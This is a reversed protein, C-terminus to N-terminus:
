EGKEAFRRARAIREPIPPHSYMTYKVFASPNPDSLNLEGLRRMAGEFASPSKTLELAFTDARREIYRSYANQLPALTLAIISLLWSLLPLATVHSLAPVKILDGYQRVLRTSLADVTWSLAATFVTGLAVFRWIDRHAQHAIEHAVVIEIEDASFNDLLTDALVIRKTRGLGAFFANAKKTQRSMDMQMVSAVNVGSDAALKTLREALQRDKLPEFKNFIPMILVPALQSLLVTFPLALATTIAWWRKPWRDIIELMVNAMIASFPVALMLGKLQDIAWAIRSQNSLGYRHEVVYGSYYGLPMSALAEIAGLLVAFMGRRVWKNETYKDVTDSLRKPLGSVIFLAGGAISLFMGALMLRQKTQNYEKPRSTSDSASAGDAADVSLMRILKFIRLAVHM